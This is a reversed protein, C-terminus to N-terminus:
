LDEKKLVKEFENQFKKTDETDKLINEIDTQEVFGRVSHNMQILASYKEKYWSEKRLMRLKNNIARNKKSPFSMLIGELLGGILEAVVKEMRGNVIKM